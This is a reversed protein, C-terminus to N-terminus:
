PFIIQVCECTVNGFADRTCRGAYSTGHTERCDANCAAADAKLCTTASRPLVPAALAQGAGFGLGAVVLAGFAGRVANRTWHRM